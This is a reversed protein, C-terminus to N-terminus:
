WLTFAKLKMMSEFARNYLIRFADLSAKTELRSRSSRPKDKPNGGETVGWDTPAHQEAHSGWICIRLSHVYGAPRSAIYDLIDQDLDSFPLTINILIASLVITSLVAEIRRCITRLAKQDRKGLQILNIVYYVPPFIFLSVFYAVEQLLENPPTLLSVPCPKGRRKM